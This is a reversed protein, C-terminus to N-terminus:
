TDPWLKIESQLVVLSPFQPLGNAACHRIISQMLGGQGGIKRYCTFWEEEPENIPKVASSRAPLSLM